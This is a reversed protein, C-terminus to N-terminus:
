SYPLSSLHPPFTSVLFFYPFHDFVFIDSGASSAIQDSGDNIIFLDAFDSGDSEAIVDDYFRATGGAGEISDVLDIFFENNYGGLFLYWM